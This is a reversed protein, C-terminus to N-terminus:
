IPEDTKNEPKSKGKKRMEVRNQKFMIKQILVIFSELTLLIYDLTYFFDQM